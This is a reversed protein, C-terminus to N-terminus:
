NKPFQHYKLIFLSIKVVFCYNSGLFPVFFSLIQQRLSIGTDVPPLLPPLWPFYTCFFKCMQFVEAM